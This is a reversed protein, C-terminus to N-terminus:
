QAFARSTEWPAQTLSWTLRNVAKKPTKGFASTRQYRAEYLEGRRSVTIKRNRSDVFEITKASMFTLYPGTSPRAM